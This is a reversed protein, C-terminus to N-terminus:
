AHCARLVDGAWAMAGILAALMAIAGVWGLVRLM